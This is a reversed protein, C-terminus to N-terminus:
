KKKKKLNNKLTEQFANRSVIDVSKATYPIHKKSLYQFVVIRTALDEIVCSTLTAGVV